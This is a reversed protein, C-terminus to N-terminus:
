NYVHWAKWYLIKEILIKDKRTSLTSAELCSKMVFYFIVAILSNHVNNSFPFNINKQPFYMEMNYVVLFMGESFHSSM